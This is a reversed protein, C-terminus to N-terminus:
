IELALIINNAVREVLPICISNGFQKYLNSDTINPLIYKKPYGQFNACEKPTLKRIGQNDLIIPVNHGGMGMNATLTPCVNSKNERVYKRRWQYITDKKIVDNKLKKYLPKNNYYYKEDVIKDLCSHITKKLKIKSPFSFNNFAKQELFGVIFIRERNQPTNGYEMANLVNDTIKYGLKQLEDYIVKITNGKDHTKLNKVNELIFAKPKKEKLIRVIDFFLNGRGDKDKFGQRYGAISFPQCPFGAFLFDFDPIDKENVKTIDGAFNGSYFLDKNHKLFNEQYTKRANEDFESAFVCKGGLNSAALHFGGIGAFLDIFTFKPENKYISQGTEFQDFIGMQFGDEVYDLSKDHKLAQYFSNHGNKAIIVFDLLAFTNVSAKSILSLFFSCKIQRCRSLRLASILFSVKLIPKDVYDLSKDHKLAQYFSNHGNKAIIVFDLLAVGM